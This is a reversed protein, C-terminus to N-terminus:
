KVDQSIAKEMYMCKAKTGTTIMLTFDIDIWIKNHASLAMEAEWREM